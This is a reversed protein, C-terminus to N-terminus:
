KKKVVAAAGAHKINKAKKGERIMAYNIVLLVFVNTGLIFIEYWVPNMLSFFETLLITILMSIRFYRYGEYRSFKLAFLGILVFAGALMSSYLQGLDSYHMYARQTFYLVSNFFTWATSAALYATIATLIRDSEAVRYYLKRLKRRLRTFYGARPSPAVDINELMKRLAKVMENRQDCKRLYEEARRREDEDFDDIASEKIMEIANVLYERQSFEHHRPIFRTILFIFVFIIYILAITPQFFYNNDATIFKGLEDIFAGFGIGGLVSAVAAARQSLFSFLTILAAVMFFGGWLMHAIHVNGAGIIPYDTVALFIRIIFVSIVASILFNEQYSDSQINRIFLSKKWM